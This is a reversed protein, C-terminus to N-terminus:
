NIEFISYNILQKLLQFILYTLNNIEFILNESSSLLNIQGFHGAQLGEIQLLPLDFQM